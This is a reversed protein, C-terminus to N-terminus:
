EVVLIPTYAALREAHDDLCLDGCQIWCHALFPFTRVGFVWACACGRRRLFRKLWYSRLLCDGDVPTWFRMRHFAAVESALLMPDLTAPPEPTAAAAILDAFSRREFHLADLTARVFASLRAATIAAKEHTQIDRSPKPWDVFDGRRGSSAALGVACRYADAAIDLVVLDDGVAATHIADPVAPPRARRGCPESGTTM